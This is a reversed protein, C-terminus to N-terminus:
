GGAGTAYAEKVSEMLSLTAGVFGIILAIGKVLAAV